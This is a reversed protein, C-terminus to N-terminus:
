PYHALTYTTSKSTPDLTSPRPNLNYHTTHLTYPQPNLTSPRPNLNYPTPHLTYPQPNQSYLFQYHSKTFLFRCHSPSYHSKTLFSLYHSKTFLFLCHSPPHTFLPFLYHSVAQRPRPHAPLVVHRHEHTALRVLKRFLHHEGGDAGVLQKVLQAAGWVRCGV